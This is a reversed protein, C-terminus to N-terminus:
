KNDFREYQRIRTNEFRTGSNYVNMIMDIVPYLMVAGTGEGLAMDADIVPKLGLRSLAETTGRERGKHSAIMYERSGPVILEVSLAAVASILGDIVVPIHFIAGGIYVGVLGAIDLGGTKTLLSLAHSKQERSDSTM